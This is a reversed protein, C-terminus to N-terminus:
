IIATVCRGCIDNYVENNGVDPLVKWCRACKEGEARNILVEVEECDELSFARAPAKGKVFKASSTIFLDALNINELAREFHTPAYLIAEVELSSGIRKEGREVEIAGTVVRRLMRAIQWKKSLAENMWASPIDPFQRLHVSDLKKQDPYRTLWAEEATFCIIPAFWATLCSFLENLVTRAARRQIDDLRDCYLTDKRIDFYFSSLEITCFNHLATFMRHFDYKECCDRILIDLEALRHLIFQELEPMESTNVKEKEDFEHLNGLLFRFTNRLRRYADTQHKIIDPGIKLDESYDSGVVWLRLIDAGYNKIIEQPAVVNGQSKSMKIGEEALVFGHTLVSEYPARGRTGCSELLSSHFWGRHQDSGELYLSAPWKLDKREELVFSHTAGSDFWVDLIDFVQEYDETKYKEGLFVAPDEEFWVDAGKKEVAKSIKQVVESDRLPKGTKKHVFVTIPVGWARQRSVCWDPRNAVMGYLRNHGTSPFFKTKDIADLARSRLNNTEMSIFWQPTTRFILPAKSRWSHPYSHVLTDNAVLTGANKLAETIKKDVTYVHEGAFLPVDQYFRGDAEVTRPIEIGNEQGVVFDETGHGPATHVLGTGDEETVHEGALLPVEFDYGHGKLPHSCITGSLNLGKIETVISTRTVGCKETVADLLAEAVLLREGLKLFSNETIEKIECVVYDLGEGYAVARNGPITWPTTTWIVANARKLSSIESKIIPFKVWIQTSKHEHYEIEAEALATREVPSWMVPKEGRFLSGNTLFKGLEKVINGEAVYNMTTYPKKWDGIVGLRRFEESQIKIWHDAFERCEKRFEVISVDDKDKKAKRYKEEIKWEIPLGHCDWGPVYNADKGLMQQSRNIVDKLIKNLAHGIHLNGNAYPPGDHLVFKAKGEADKRQRGYLDMKDWRALIEPEKQPLSGRMPFHTKPLFITSKYDISM